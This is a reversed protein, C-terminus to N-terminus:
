KHNQNNGAFFLLNFRLVSLWKDSGTSLTCSAVDSSFAFSSFRKSINENQVHRFILNRAIM